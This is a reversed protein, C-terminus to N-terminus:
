VDIPKTAAKRAKWEWYWAIWVACEYLIQLPIFMLVQTLVEPAVKGHLSVPLTAEGCSLVLVVAAGSLLRRMASCTHM